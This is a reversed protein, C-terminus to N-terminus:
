REWDMSVYRTNGMAIPEPIPAITPPYKAAHAGVSANRTTSAAMRTIEATLSQTLAGFEFQGVVRRTDPMPWQAAGMAQLTDGKTDSGWM